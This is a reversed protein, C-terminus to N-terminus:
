LGLLAQGRSFILGLGSHSCAAFRPPSELLSHCLILLALSCQVVFVMNVAREDQEDAAYANYKSAVVSWLAEGIRHQNFAEEVRYQDRWTRSDIM